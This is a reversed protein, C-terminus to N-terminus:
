KGYIILAHAAGSYYCFKIDKVNWGADEIESIKEAVSDEFSSWSYIYAVKTKNNKNHDIRNSPNCCSPFMLLILLLIRKM